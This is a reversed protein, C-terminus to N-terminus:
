YGVAGPAVDRAGCPVGAAEDDAADKGGFHGGGSPFKEALDEALTVLPAGDGDGGVKGEFFLGRDEPRLGGGARQQVAEGVVDVDQLHVALAVAEAVAPLAGGGLGGSSLFSEQAGCSVM